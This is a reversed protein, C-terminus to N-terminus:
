PAIDWSHVSGPLGAQEADISGQDYMLYLSFVIRYSRAPVPPVEADPFLQSPVQPDFGASAVEHIVVLAPLDQLRGIVDIVDEIDSNDLEVLLPYHEVFSVPGTFYPTGDAAVNEQRYSDLPRRDGVGGPWGRLQEPSPLSILMDGSLAPATLKLSGRRGSRSSNLAPLLEDELFEILEYRDALFSDTVDLHLKTRMQSNLACAEPLVNIALNERNINQQLAALRRELDAIRPKSQDVQPLPQLETYVSIEGAQELLESVKSALEPSVPASPASTKVIIYAPLEGRDSRELRRQFGECSFDGMGDIERGYAIIGTPMFDPTSEISGIIEPLRQPTPQKVLLALRPRGANLCFGEVDAKQRDLEGAAAVSTDWDPAQDLLDSVVQLYEEMQRIEAVQQACKDFDPKLRQSVAEEMAVQEQLEYIRHRSEGCATLAAVCIMALGLATVQIHM